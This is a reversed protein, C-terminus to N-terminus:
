VWGIPGAISRLIRERAEQATGDHSWFSIGLCYIREDVELAVWTYDLTGAEDAIKATLIWAEDVNAYRARRVTPPAVFEYDVTWRVATERAVDEAGMSYPGESALFAVELVYPLLMSGSAVKEMPEGKKADVLVLPTPTEFTVGIGSTRFRGWQASRSEREVIPKRPKPAAPIQQLSSM